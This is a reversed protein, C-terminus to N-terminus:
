ENRIANLPSLKTARQAPFFGALMGIVTSFAIALLVLWFPIVSIKTGDPLDLSGANMSAFYNVVGSLAFSLIIGVMGGFFGIFAAESLFMARINSLKCGLVKMVGIEKTREYTSMTMTNAISIAAVLMAVGGIGGLVAQIIMFEKEVQELWEKNADAQYGMDQITQLVEEVNDSNDVNIKVDSYKLDPYPKGNKDTPQGPVTVNEPYNDKIFKKLQEITTFFNYSYETYTEEDGSSIGVVKLPVRKTNANFNSYSIENTMDTETDQQTNSDPSVGAEKTIDASNGDTDTTNNSDTQGSGESFTPDFVPQNDTATDGNEDTADQPVEIGGVLNSRLLDINPLTGDEWYPNNGTNSDYFNMLTQNGAILELEGSTGSPIVGKGLEIDNLAEEKVGYISIYSEYKGDQVPIDLELRPSASEVHDISLFNEIAADDLMVTDSANSDGYHMDAYVSIQTLGGSSGVQEMVAAKLGIGLSLMVVISTTGILVGLVTLITRTKRRWLNSLSMGLIDSIRM